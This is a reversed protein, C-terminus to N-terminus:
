QFVVELFECRRKPTADRSFQKPECGPLKLDAIHQLAAQRTFLNSLDYVYFGRGDLSMAVIDPSLKAESTFLNVCSSIQLAKLAIKGGLFVM